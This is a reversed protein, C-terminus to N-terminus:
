FLYKLAFQMERNSAGGLRGFAANGVTTNLITESAPLGLLFDALGNTYQSGITGTFAGSLYM